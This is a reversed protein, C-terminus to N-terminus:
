SQAPRGVPAVHLKEGAVSVMPAEPPACVAVKVTCVVPALVVAVSRAIPGAAPPLGKPLRGKSAVTKQIGPQNIAAIVPPLRFSEDRVRWMSINSNSRAPTPAIVAQPPPDDIVGPGVAGVVGAVGAPVEVTCTTTVPVPM